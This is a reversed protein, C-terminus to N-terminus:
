QNARIVVRYYKTLGATESTRTIELVDGPRGGVLMVMPDSETIKPLQWKTIGRQKLLKEIEEDTLKRHKPAWKHEILSKAIGRSEM